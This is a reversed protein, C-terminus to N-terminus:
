NKYGIVVAASAMMVASGRNIRQIARSSRFVRRAQTALYLVTLISSSCVLMMVAVMSGFAPLTMHQVDVVLPMLSLFFVMVKPNSLTLTLTGLFGTWQDPATSGAEVDTATTPATWIKWAMYLLYACGAYKLVLFATEFTTALAALGTAAITFWIVDGLVFGAVYGLSRQTGTSLGRAVTAAVGPGPSLVFILYVLAFTLLGTTNV